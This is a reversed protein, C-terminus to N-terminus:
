EKKQQRLYNVVYKGLYDFEINLSEGVEKAHLHTEELTHPIISVICSQNTNSVVTLSVGDLAISGKPLVYKGYSVDYSVTLNYSGEVKEIQTILGLTDVHGTCYHGGLRDSLKMARELNVKAGIRLFGLSTIELTSRIVDVFFSDEEQNVVTLCVGNVAISDSVKTKDLVKKAFIQLRLISGQTEITSVEGLEEILGTFM